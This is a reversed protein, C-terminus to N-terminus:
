GVERLTDIVRRGTVRFMISGCDHRHFTGGGRRERERREDILLDSQGSVGTHFQILDRFLDARENM